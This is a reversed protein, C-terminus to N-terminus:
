LQHVDLPNRVQVIERNIRALSKLGAAQDRQIFHGAILAYCSQIWRERHSDVIRGAGLNSVHRCDTAVEALAGATPVEAIAISQERRVRFAFGQHQLAVITIVRNQSVRPRRVKHAGEV